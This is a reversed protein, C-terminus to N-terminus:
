QIVGWFSIEPLVVQGIPGSSAYTAVTKFRVYRYTGQLDVPFDFDGGNTVSYNIDDATVQGQPLGSPKVFEFSSLKTWSDWSGDAAPNNSGWIEFARVSAGAFPSEFYHWVKMRSFRITVGLDLTIWQPIDLTHRSAFIGDYRGSGWIGDYVHPLSFSEVYQYGDNPLYLAKWTNKPIFQEFLPTIMKQLSDSHNNWRDRLYVAFRHPTADFGRVSFVGTTAASYYSRVEKWTGNGTSDYLLTTVLNTGTPNEYKVSVGGFAPAVVLSNFVSAVPPTLPTLHVTVPESRKENKGVSYVSITRERTDGFGTIKLTDNFISTKTESKVGPQLEYEAKVYSLNPDVPLKYLIYGGGPTPVVQIDTIPAPAPAGPDTYNYVAEKGCGALILLALLAQVWYKRRM